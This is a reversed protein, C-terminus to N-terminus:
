CLLFDIYCTSTFMCIHDTSVEPKKRMGVFVEQDQPGANKLHRTDVRTLFPLGQDNQRGIYWRKMNALIADAAAGRRNPPLNEMNTVGLPGPWPPITAYDHPGLQCTLVGPNAFSKVKVIKPGRKELSDEHTSYVQGTMTTTIPPAQRM